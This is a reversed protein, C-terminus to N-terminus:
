ISPFNRANVKPHMLIFTLARLKRDIQRFIKNKLLKVFKQSNNATKQIDSDLATDNQHNIVTNTHITFWSVINRSFSGKPLMLIADRPNIHMTSLGEPKQTCHM